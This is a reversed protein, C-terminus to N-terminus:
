ETEHGCPLCGQAGPSGLQQLAAAGSSSHAAQTSQLPQIHTSLLAVHALEEPSVIQVKGPCAASASSSAFAQSAMWSKALMSHKDPM